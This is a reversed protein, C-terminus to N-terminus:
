RKWRRPFKEKGVQYVAEIEIRMLAFPLMM